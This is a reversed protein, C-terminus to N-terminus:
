QAFEASRQQVADAGRRHVAEDQGRDTRVGVVLEDVRSLKRGREFLTAGVGLEAGTVDSLGAGRSGSERGLVVGGEDAALTSWGLGL